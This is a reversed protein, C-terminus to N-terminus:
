AAVLAADDKIMREWEKAMVLRNWIVASIGVIVNALATAVFVGIYGFYHSAIFAIPIYVM